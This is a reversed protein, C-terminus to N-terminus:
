GREVSAPDDVVAQVTDDTIIRYDIGNVKVRSGAYSKMIICEGVKCWPGHPFKNHGAMTTGQYCQPGMAIVKAVMSATAEKAVLEDPKHIGGKTIKHVNPLQVLMHYGTPKPLKNM